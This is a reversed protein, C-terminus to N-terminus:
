AAGTRKRRIGQGPEDHEAQGKEEDGTVHEAHVDSAPHKCSNSTRGIVIGFILFIVAAILLAKHKNEMPPKKDRVTLLKKDKM